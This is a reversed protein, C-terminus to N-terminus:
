QVSFSETKCTHTDKIMLPTAQSPCSEAFFISYESYISANDVQLTAVGDCFGKKFNNNLFLEQLALNKTHQEIFLLQSPQQNAANRLEKMLQSMQDPNLLRIKNVDVVQLWTLRKYSTMTDDICTHLFCTLSPSILIVKSDSSFSAM